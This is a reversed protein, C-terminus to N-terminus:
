KKMIKEIKKILGFRNVKSFAIVAQNLNMDLGNLTVSQYNGALEILITKNPLYIVDFVSSKPNRKFFNFSETINKNILKINKKVFLKEDKKEVTSIKSISSLPSFYKLNIYGGKKKIWSDFGVSTANILLSINKIKKLQKYNNIIKINKEKNKKFIKKLKQKKRNFFFKKNKKYNKLISIIGAKGAGGAGLFLISDKNKLKFKKLSQSFALYDTNIGFLKKNSKIITNIANIKKSNTDVSDLYKIIKEKYPITVSGGLFRNDNKLLNVLNKLNNEQVDAPYMECKIKQRKYVKNWLVPSRAGFSPSAGIILAFKKHRFKLKNSIYKNLNTSTAIM